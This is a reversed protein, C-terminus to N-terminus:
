SVSDIWDFVRANIPVAEMIDLVPVLQFELLDAFTATAELAAAASDAEAIFMGGTGDASAWHGQFSFGAPPKWAQFRKLGIRQDVGARFRYTGGVLMSTSRGAPDKTLKWILYTV